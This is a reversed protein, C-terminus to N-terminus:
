IRVDGAPEPRHLPFGQLLHFGAEPLAQAQAPTEVGETVTQKELGAGLQAISRLQTQAPLDGPIQRM